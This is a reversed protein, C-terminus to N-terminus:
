RVGMQYLGTLVGGVVTQGEASPTDISYVAMAEDIALQPTIIQDTTFSYPARTIVDFESDHQLVDVQYMYQGAQGASWPTFRDVSVALSPDLGAVIHLNDLAARVEGALRYWTQTRIAGGEDRFIRLASTASEGNKLMQAIFGAPALPDTPM